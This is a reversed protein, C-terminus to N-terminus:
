QMRLSLWWAGPPKQVKVHLDARGDVDSLAHALIIGDLEAQVAFGESPLGQQGTVLLSVNVLGANTGLRSVFGEMTRSNTNVLSVPIVAVDVGYRATNNFVSKRIHPLSLSTSIWFVGGGSKTARNLEVKSTGLEFTADDSVAVGGGRAAHNAVIQSGVLRLTSNDNAGAGGGDGSVANRDLLVAQGIVGSNATMIIGGGNDARNGTINVHILSVNASLSTCLGGGGGGVAANASVFTGSLFCASNDDVYVGGGCTRCTNNHLQSNVVVRAKKGVCLGGGYAEATNGKVLIRTLYATASAWVYVGGGSAATNGTILSNTLILQRATAYIAGGPSSSNNATFNSSAVFATAHYLLCLLYPPRKILCRRGWWPWQMTAGRMLMM